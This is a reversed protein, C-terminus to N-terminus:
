PEMHINPNNMRTRCFFFFTVPLKSPIANFRYIAKPVITMKVTIIRIWFCPIDKWLFHLKKIPVKHETLVWCSALREVVLFFPLLYINPVYCGGRCCVKVLLKEKKPRVDGDIVTWNLRETTDLVKRGWAAHWAERDMVLERLKSLSMSLLLIKGAREWLAIQIIFNSM